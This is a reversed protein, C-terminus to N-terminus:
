EVRLFYRSKIWHAVKDALALGDLVSTRYHMGGYIRGGIVEKLVDDINTFTHTTLTGDVTDSVRISRTEM